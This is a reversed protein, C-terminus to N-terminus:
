LADDGIQHRLQGKLSSNWQEIMGVDEPQHSISYSWQIEHFLDRQQSDPGKTSQLTIHSGM